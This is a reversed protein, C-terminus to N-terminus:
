KKIKRKSLYKLFEEPTKFLVKYDKGTRSCNQPDYEKCIKPRNEYIACYGSPLLNECPTKMLIQWQNYLDLYIEINRHYLYWIYMQITDEDEPPDLPVTVYMCCGHCQICIEEQSLQKELKKSFKPFYLEMEPIQKADTSTSLINKRKIKHM